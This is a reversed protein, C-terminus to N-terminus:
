YLAKFLFLINVDKIFLASFYKPNEDSSKNKTIGNRNEKRNYLVEWYLM